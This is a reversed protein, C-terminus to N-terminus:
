GAPRPESPADHKAPGPGSRIRRRLETCAIEAERATWGTGKWAAPDSWWALARRDRERAEDDREMREADAVAEVEALAALCRERAAEICDAAEIEARLVMLAGALTRRRPASVRADEDGVVDRSM